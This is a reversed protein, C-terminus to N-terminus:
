VETVEVDAPELDAAAAEKEAVDSVPGAQGQLEVLKLCLRSVRTAKVGAFGVNTQFDDGKGRRQIQSLMIEGLRDDVSMKKWSGAKRGGRVTHGIQFDQTIGRLSQVLDAVEIVGEDVGDTRVVGEKILGRFLDEDTESESLDVLVGMPNFPVGCKEIFAELRATVEQKNM